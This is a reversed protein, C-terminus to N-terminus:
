YSNRIRNYELKNEIVFAEIYKASYYKGKNLVLRYEYNKKKKKTHKM